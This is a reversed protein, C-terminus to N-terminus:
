WNRQSKEKKRDNKMKMEKKEETKKTNDKKFGKNEPCRFLSKAAKVDHLFYYYLIPKNQRYIFYQKVMGTRNLGTIITM